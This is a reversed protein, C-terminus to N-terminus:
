GARRRRRLSQVVSRPLLSKALLSLWRVSLAHRPHLRLGRFVYRRTRGLELAEYAFEAGLLYANARGENAVPRAAAPLRDGVLFTEALREHDLALRVGQGGTSKAQQHVRYTSLPKAVHRVAQPPFQLFFEFDFFYWADENFPGFREWAQRRWMTSPQVVHNDCSRTMEVVDFPRAPLSGTRRSQEDAYQADGYVLLLSEDQELESVMTAVAGPLLTDDSNLFALLDGTAQAFGRNITAAQGANTQTTWWALRDEYRRIIDVSDDTSGDDLVIYEIPAYDQDLVSVITQELFAAQNYSPTVISVLPRSV